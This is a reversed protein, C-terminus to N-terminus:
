HAHGHTDHVGYAWLTDEWLSVGNRLVNLTLRYHDYPDIEFTAPGFAGIEANWTLTETGARSELRLTIGPGPTPSLVPAFHGRLWTLEVTHPAGQLSFDYIAGGRSGRKADHALEAMRSKNIPVYIFAGAVGLAIAIALWRKWSNRATPKVLVPEDSFTSM